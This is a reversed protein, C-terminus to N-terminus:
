GFAIQAAAAGGIERTLNQFMPFGWSQRSQGDRKKRKLPQVFPIVNVQSDLKCVKNCSNPVDQFRRFLKLWSYSHHHEGSLEKQLCVPFSLVCFSSLSVSRQGKISLLPHSFDVLQRPM